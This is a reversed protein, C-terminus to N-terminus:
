RNPAIGLSHRSDTTRPMRRRRRPPRIDNEQMIKAVTKRSIRAGQAVSEAHIRPAGYRGKSQEFITRIRVGM